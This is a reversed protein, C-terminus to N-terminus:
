GRREGGPAGAKILLDKGDNMGQAGVLLVLDGARTGDLVAHLAADLADHWMFARGTSVFAQRTADIEDASAHDNPGVADASATVVLSRVGHVACLDALAIANQRNIATGRNGRMAYVVVLSGHPLM